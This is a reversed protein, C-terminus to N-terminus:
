RSALRARNKKRRRKHAADSQRREEARQWAKINTENGPTDVYPAVRYPCFAMDVMSPKTAAIEAVIASARGLGAQQLECAADLLYERAILTSSSDRTLLDRVGGEGFQRHIFGIVEAISEFVDFPSPEEPLFRDPDITNLSM